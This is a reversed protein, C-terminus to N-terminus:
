FVYLVKRNIHYLFPSYPPNNMFVPACNFCIIYESDDQFTHKVDDHVPNVSQAVRSLEPNRPTGACTERLANKQEAQM